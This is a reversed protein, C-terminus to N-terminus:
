LLIQLIEKPSPALYNPKAATLEEFSGYGYTVALSDMGGERAGNIVFKRDGVLICRTRDTIGAKSLIYEVVEAKETRTEDM